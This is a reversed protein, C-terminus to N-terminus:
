FVVACDSQGIQEQYLMGIHKGAGLLVKRLKM